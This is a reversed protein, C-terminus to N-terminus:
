ALSWDEVTLQPIEQFGTDSTLLVLGFSLAAAAIGSTTRMWRDERAGSTRRSRRTVPNNRM